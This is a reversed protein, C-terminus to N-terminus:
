IFGNKNSYISRCFYFSIRCVQTMFKYSFYKQQGRPGLTGLNPGKHDRLTDWPDFFNQEFNKDFRLLYNM